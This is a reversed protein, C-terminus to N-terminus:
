ALIKYPEWLRFRLESDTDKAVHKLAPFYGVVEVQVDKYEVPWRKTLWKPGKELKWLQFWSKPVKIPVSTPSTEYLKYRIRSVLDYGIVDSVVSMNAAILTTDARAEAMYQARRLVLENYKFLSDSDM